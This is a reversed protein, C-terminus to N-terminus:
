NISKVKHGTFYSTMLIALALLASFSPALPDGSALHAIFGSIMTIAFGAYAWEKLRGVKLPLWLVIIGIIKAIALEIRLYDPLGFHLCLQKAEESTLYVYANKIMWLSFLGTAIWYIIKQTKM